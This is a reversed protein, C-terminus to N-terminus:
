WPKLYDRCLTELSNELFSCAVGSCSRLLERAVRRRLLEWTISQLAGGWSIGQLARGWSISQLVGCHEAINRLVRSQETSSNWLITIRVIYFACFVRPRSHPLKGNVFQFPIQQPSGDCSTGNIFFMKQGMQFRKHSFLFKFLFKELFTMYLVGLPFSRM